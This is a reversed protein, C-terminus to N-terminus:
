QFTLKNRVLIITTMIGICAAHVFSILIEWLFKFQLVPFLSPVQSILAVFKSFILARSLLYFQFTKPYSV